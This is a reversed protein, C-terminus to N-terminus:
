LLLSSLCVPGVILELVALIGISFIGTSHDSMGADEVIRLLVPFATVAFCMAVALKFTSPSLQPQM